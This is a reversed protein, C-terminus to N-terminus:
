LMRRLTDDRRGWHHWLAALVHAGIVWYFATGIAGHLDELAHALPKDQALLAPLAVDTFPIRIQKGDAWATALGLLPMGIFFAYLALHVVKAAVASYRDLPPTIAPTRHRWRQILRWWVLLFLSIGAWYHGQMMAARGSSGRAFWGRQEILVYALVVLLAMLWHLRRLIPSYRARFLTNM